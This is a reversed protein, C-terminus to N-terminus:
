EDDLFIDDLSGIPDHKLSIGQLDMDGTQETTMEGINDAVGEVASGLAKLRRGWKGKEGRAAEKGVQEAREEKEVHEKAKIKGLEKEYSENRIDGLRAQEEKWNKIKEKIGFV